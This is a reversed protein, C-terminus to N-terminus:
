FSNTSFFNSVKKRTKAMAEDINNQVLSNVNIRIKEGNSVMKLDVRTISTNTVIKDSKAKSSIKEIHRLKMVAVVECLEEENSKLFNVRPQANMVSCVNKWFSGRYLDLYNYKDYPNGFIDIVELQKVRVYTTYNNSILKIHYAYLSTVFGM